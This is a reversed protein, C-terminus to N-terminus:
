RSRLLEENWYFKGDQENYYYLEKIKSDQYEEALGDLFSIINEAREIPDIMQKLLLQQEIGQRIEFYTPVLSTNSDTQSAVSAAAQRLALMQQYEDAHLTTKVLVWVSEAKVGLLFQIIDVLRSTAEELDGFAYDAMKSNIPFIIDRLRGFFEASQLSDNTQNIRQVEKVLDAITLHKKNLEGVVAESALVNDKLTQYFEQAGDRDFAQTDIYRMLEFVPDFDLIVAMVLQKPFAMKQLFDPAMRELMSWSLLTYWRFYDYRRTYNNEASSALFYTNLIKALRDREGSALLGFEQDHQAIQDPNLPNASLLQQCFKEINM